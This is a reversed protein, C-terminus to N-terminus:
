NEQYLLNCSFFRGKLADSSSSNVFTQSPGIWVQCKVSADSSCSAANAASLLSVKDLLDIIGGAGHVEEHRNGVDEKRSVAEVSQLDTESSPEVDTKSSPQMAQMFSDLSFRITTVDAIM